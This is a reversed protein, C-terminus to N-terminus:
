PLIAEPMKCIVNKGIAINGISNKGIDNKDM